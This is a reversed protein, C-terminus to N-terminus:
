VPVYIKQRQVRHRFTELGSPSRRWVKSLEETSSCGLARTSSGPSLNTDSEVSTLVWKIRIDSLWMGWNEMTTIDPTKETMFQKWITKNYSNVTKPSVTKSQSMHSNKKSLLIFTQLLFKFHIQNLTWSRLFFCNEFKNILFTERFRYFSM